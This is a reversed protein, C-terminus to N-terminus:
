GTLLLHEPSQLADMIMRMFRIADAGDIVRHDFSLVIPLMLRAQIKRTEPHVVPQLRAQGMGLIAVQPYNIIPAFFGGGLPGANTISFTGGHLEELQINRQRAKETIDKLAIALELISKRDVDRIVPVMLGEDTNVAIGIHYYHKLILEGQDMDLSANFNPWAKLATILAKMVFPLLTLKGGKEEVMQKHKIRFDELATIDVQDQNHVHPIQSWSLAMQRATTRRISRVPVREIQGWSSFDPLPPIEVRVPRGAPAEAATDSPVTEPTKEAHPTAQPTETPKEGATKQAHSRVDEATVRGAKGSPSVTKLDVGLERALRRTAPSAPVPGQGSSRPPTSPPAKQAETTAAAPQAPSASEMEPPAESATSPEPEQSQPTESEITMMTDGVTVEDGPKVMIEEITGSFPSPIEVAAKDTEVELIPDGETVTDGTKVLVAIVEGEHIGEGLDPLKFANAM